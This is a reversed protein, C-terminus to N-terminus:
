KLYVDALSLEETETVDLGQLYENFAFLADKLSEDIEEGDSHLLSNYLPSKELRLNNEQAIEYVLNGEEGHCWEAGLEIYVDKNGFEVSKIRGGRRNEAELIVIGAINFQLLRSAAAIGSAGAGVIVIDFQQQAYVCFFGFILAVVIEYILVNM